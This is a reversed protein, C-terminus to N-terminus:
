GATVLAVGLLAIVVGLRQVMRLRESYVVRALLVTIAPYLSTLVAALSLMGARTAFVYLMNAVSDLAGAVVAILLV